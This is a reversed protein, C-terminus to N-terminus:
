EGIGAAFGGEGGGEVAEAFHAVIVAVLEGFDAGVDDVVLDVGQCFGELAESDGAGAAVIVFEIGDGGFVVVGEVADQVARAGDRLGEVCGRLGVELWRRTMFGRTM